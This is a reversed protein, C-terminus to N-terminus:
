FKINWSISPMIPFISIQRVSIALSHDQIINGHIDFFVLFPNARNYVNFVSFNLSSEFRQKLKFNYTVSLDMRHYPPMRFGNTEGYETLINGGLLYIQVPVTMTNGTAYIFALSYDWRANPKYNAMLNIEHRRDYKAPFPRGNNIEEFQRESYSLSYGLWGTLKGQQKQLFFEIGTSYGKGSTLGSEFSVDQLSAGLGYLLEVQHKLRKYYSEISATYSNEMFNRYYGFTIQDGFQPKTHTTSPIWIDSPMTISSASAVHIFQYNRTYSAKVSSSAGTQLRVSIRPALCSYSKIIEFDSYDTTDQISGETTRNTQRYPGLHNYNNLRLGGYIKLRNTFNKEFSTFIASESAYLAQYSGYNLDVQNVSLMFENPVFRYYKAELGTKLIGEGIKNNTYELKYNLNKISSYLSLGLINQDSHSDFYYNSYNLINVLYSSDSIVYNWNFALLSNGWNIKSRYSVDHKELSFNDRGKYAMLSLRNRCGLLCTLKVNLDFMGYKSGSLVGGSDSPMFLELVPKAIENFYTKRFSIYYSLRNEILPGQLTAKSYILGVNASVTHKEFNGDITRVNLVSSLRGGYNAPIGSKILSASSIIDSNFVSFFGLVHSPNYVVANDLLILNQDVNGGRVYFGSNGDNASQMGPSYQLARILDPEGMLTPLKRIEKGTLEVLGTRASETNEVPNRATIIVESTETVKPTLLVNLTFHDRVSLHIKKIQYGVYSFQLIHEGKKVRISYKGNTDSLTGTSENQLYVTAGILPEHTLSDTISGNVKFSEQSFLISGTFLSAAAVIVLYKL